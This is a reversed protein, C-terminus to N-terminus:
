SSSELDMKFVRVGCGTMSQEMLGNWEVMEMGKIMKLSVRTAVAQTGHLSDWGM